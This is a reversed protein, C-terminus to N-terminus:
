WLWDNKLCMLTSIGVITAMKVNILLIFKMSVQTSCSFSKFGRNWTHKKGASTSSDTIIVHPHKKGIDQVVMQELQALESDTLSIYDGQMRVTHINSTERPIGVQSTGLVYIRQYFYFDFEPPAALFCIFHAKNHSLRDEPNKVLNSM